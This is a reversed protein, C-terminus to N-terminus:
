KRKRPALTEAQVPPKYDVHQQIRPCAQPKLYILLDYEGTPTRFLARADMGVDDGEGSELSALSPSQVLRALVVLSSRALAVMRQLIQRSPGGAVAQSDWGGATWVSQLSDLPTAIYLAPLADREERM